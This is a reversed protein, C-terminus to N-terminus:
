HMTHVSVNRKLCVASRKRMDASIINKVPYRKSFERRQHQGSFPLFLEQEALGSGGDHAASKASYDQGSQVEPHVVSLVKVDECGAALEADDFSVLSVDEPVHLGREELFEMYYGAVEDNYLIMATCDKTRRYMRLLGKKSLKEEMDKTSYWRIWDDDFKVGYDSLCEMFGKYREIGQM